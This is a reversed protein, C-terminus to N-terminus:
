EEQMPWKGSFFWWYFKNLLKIDEDKIKFNM